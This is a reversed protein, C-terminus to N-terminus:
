SALEVGKLYFRDGTARIHLGQVGARVAYTGRDATVPLFVFLSERLQDAQKFLQIQQNEDKTAMAAAVVQAFHKADPSASQDLIQNLENTRTAADLTADSEIQQYRAWM